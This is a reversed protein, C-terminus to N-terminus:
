AITQDRLYDSVLKQTCSAYHQGQLLFINRFVPNDYEYLFNNVIWSSPHIYKSYLKFFAEYEVKNNTQKALFSVTWHKELPIGHKKMLENICSMRSQISKIVVEPTGPKTISLFGENIELEESAKQGIFEKAKSPDSLIYAVLLYCEFLNRASIASFEIPSQKYEGLRELLKSTYITLNRLSIIVFDLGDKERLNSVKDNLLLIIERLNANIDETSGNIMKHGYKM